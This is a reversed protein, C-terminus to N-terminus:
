GVLSLHSANEFTFYDDPFFQCNRNEGQLDAIQHDILGWIILIATYFAGALDTWARPTGAGVLKRMLLGLNFGAVQILLRKAINEHGKLWVQRMGGADLYHTFAREVLEGRKRMWGKGAESRVNNRNAYFALQQRRKGKWKRRGTKPESIVPQIEQQKLRDCVSASHYGKDAIVHQVRERTHPRGARKEEEAEQAKLREEVTELNAIVAELTSDLTTTDGRDAGQVTVAVVAGTELDVAQECKEAFHTRGDKMKTIKADPNHPNHWHKNSLKKGKRRRDFRSIDDPGPDDPEDPDEAMLGKVYERYSKGSINHTLARMSANSELTTADVGIKKGRLLKESVLIDLVKAFVATHVALPLRRRTKSITSHDPTAQTLGVGTFHRLSLSDAVRWAIQRESPIREFYGLMLLRFYVGPALGPRGMVEAYYPQCLEECFTDFRYAIFVEELRSYFPHAPAKAIEDSTIFLEKQISRRRGLAM